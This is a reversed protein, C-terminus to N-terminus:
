SAMAMQQELLSMRSVLKANRIEAFDKEAMSLRADFNDLRAEIRDLRAEIKDLRIEIKDFREDVKIFSRQIMGALEEISDTITKTFDQKLDQKTEKLADLLDQKTINQNEM